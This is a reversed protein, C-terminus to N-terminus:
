LYMKVSNHGEIDWWCSEVIQFVSARVCQYKNRSPFRQSKVNSAFQPTLGPYSEQPNQAWRPRPTVALRHIFATWAAGKCNKVKWTWTKFMKLFFLFFFFMHGKERCRQGLKSSKWGKFFRESRRGWELPLCAVTYPLRRAWRSDTRENCWDSDGALNIGVPRAVKDSRLFICNDTSRIASEHRKLVQQTISSITISSCRSPRVDCKVGRSSQWSPPPPPDSSSHSMLSVSDM